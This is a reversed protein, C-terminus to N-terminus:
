NLTSGTKQQPVPLQLVCIAHHGLKALSAIYYDVAVTTTPPTVSLIPTTQKLKSQLPTESWLGPQGSARHLYM